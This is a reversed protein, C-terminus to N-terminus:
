ISTTDMTVRRPPAVLQHKPASVNGMEVSVYQEKSEAAEKKLRATRIKKRYPAFQPIISLGDAPLYKLVGEKRAFEADQEYAQLKKERVDHLHDMYRIVPLMLTMLGGDILMIVGMFMMTAVLFEKLSDRTGDQNFAEALDGIEEDSLKDFESKIKDKSSLVGIGGGILLLALLFAIYFYVNFMKRHFSVHDSITRFSLHMDNYIGFIALLILIVSGLICVVPAAVLVGSKFMAIGTILTFIAMGLTFVNMGIFLNLVISDLTMIKISCIVGSVLSLLTFIGLALFGFLGYGSTDDQFEDMAESRSLGQYDSPFFMALKYWENDLKEHFWDEYLFFAIIALVVFIVSAVCVYFYCLLTLTPRLYNSGVSGMCAFILVIIGFSYLFPAANEAGDWVGFGFATGVGMLIMVMAIIIWITNICHLFWVSRGRKKQLQIDTYYELVNEQKKTLKALVFTAAGALGGVRPDKERLNLAIRMVDIENDFLKGRYPAALPLNALRVALTYKDTHKNHHVQTHTHTHTPHTHILLTSYFVRIRIYMGARKGM